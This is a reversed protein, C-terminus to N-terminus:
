GVAIEESTSSIWDSLSASVKGLGAFAILGLLFAFYSGTFTGLALPPLIYILGEVVTKTAESASRIVRFFTSLSRWKAALKQGARSKDEIGLVRGTERFFAELLGEQGSFQWANFEIITPRQMEPLNELAEVVMNKVSSKGSGWAGYLAVVLSEAGNWNYIATALSEAFTGRGLLDEKASRIPRDASFQM